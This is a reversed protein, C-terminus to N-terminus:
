YAQSISLTRVQSELIEHMVFFYALLSLFLFINRRRLFTKHFEKQTLTWSAILILYFHLLIFYRSEVLVPVVTIISVLLLITLMKNPFSFLPYLKNSIAIVVVCWLMANLIIFLYGYRDYDVPYPNNSNIYSGCTIHLLYIGAVKLFDDSVIKKYDDLNGIHQSSDLVSLFKPTEHFIKPKINQIRSEFKINKLGAELHIVIINKDHHHSKAEINPFLSVKSSQLNFILQPTSILLFGIFFLLAKYIKTSAHSTSKILLVVLLIIFLYVLFLFSPRMNVAMSICIGALLYDTNKTSFICVFAIGIFLVAYLDCLPTHLYGGYFFIILTTFILIHVKSIEVSFIRTLLNPGVITFIWSFVVSSVLAFFYAHPLGLFEPIRFLLNLLFPFLYGRIGLYINTFNFDFNKGFQKSLYVYDGSDWRFYGDVFFLNNVLIIFVVSFFFIVKPTKEIRNSLLNFNMMYRWIFFYM